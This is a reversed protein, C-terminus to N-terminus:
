VVVEEIVKFDGRLLKTTFGGQRMELEYRYLGPKVAAMAEADILIDLHGSSPDAISIGAEDTLNLRLKSGPGRVQLQVAYGTLDIPEEEDDKWTVGLSFTSGQYTTIDYTGSM